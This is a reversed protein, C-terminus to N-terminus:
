KRLLLGVINSTPIEVLLRFLLASPVLLGLAAVFGVIQFYANMLSIIFYMIRPGRLSCDMLSRQSLLVHPASRQSLLGHPPVQQSFLIFSKHGYSSSCKAVFGMNGAWLYGGGLAWDRMYRLYLVVVSLM